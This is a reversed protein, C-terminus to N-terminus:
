VAGDGTASVVGDGPFDGAGIRSSVSSGVDLPGAGVDPRVGAVPDAGEDPPRMGVAICSAGDGPDTVGAPPMGAAAPPVLGPVTSISAIGKGVSLALLEPASLGAAGACLSLSSGAAIVGAALVADGDPIDGAAAGSAPGIAGFPIPSRGGSGLSRARSSIAVLGVPPIGWGAVAVVGGVDESGMALGAATPDTAVCASSSAKGGSGTPTSAGAGIAAAAAGAGIAVVGAVVLAIAVAGSSLVRLATSEPGPACTGVGASGLGVAASAAAASGFPAAAGSDVDRGVPPVSGRAPVSGPVPVDGPAELSVATAFGSM